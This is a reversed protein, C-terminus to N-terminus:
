AEEEDDDGHDHILQVKALELVGIATAVPMSESYKGIVAMIEEFMGEALKLPSLNKM